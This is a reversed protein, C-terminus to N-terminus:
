ILAEPAELTAKVAVLFQVANRGDILRHDGFRQETKRFGVSNLRPQEM